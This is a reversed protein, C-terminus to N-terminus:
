SEDSCLFAITAKDSLAAQAGRMRKMSWVEYDFADGKDLHHLVAGWASWTVKSVISYLKVRKVKAAIWAPPHGAWYHAVLAQIAAENDDLGNESVLNGLEWSPEARGALEWDIVTLHGSSDLFNASLLDNHCDVLEEACLSLHCQISSLEEVLLDYGPWCVGGDGSLLHVQEEYTKRAHFPDFTNAFLVPHCHIRHLTEVLHSVGTSTSLLGQMQVEDMTRGQVYDLALAGGHTGPLPAIYGLVPAGVHKGRAAICSNIHEQERDYGLHSSTKALFRRLVLKRKGVTVLVNDNTLGGGLEEAHPTDGDCAIDLHDLATAISIVELTADGEM